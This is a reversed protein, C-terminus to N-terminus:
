DRTEDGVEVVLRWVGDDAIATLVDHGLSAANRKIDPVAPRHDLTVELRDGPRLTLLERRVRAWTLPCILGRIDLARTEM